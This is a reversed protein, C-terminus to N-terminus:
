ATFQSPNLANSQVSGTIMKKNSFDGEPVTVFVNDYIKYTKGNEAFASFINGKYRVKYEGTDLNEITFIRGQITQDYQLESIKQDYMIEISQLVQEAIENM